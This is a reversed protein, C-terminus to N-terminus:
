ALYGILVGILLVVAAAVCLKKMDHTVDWLLDSARAQLDKLNM